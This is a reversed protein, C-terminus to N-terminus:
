GIKSQLLEMLPQMLTSLMRLTPDGAQEPMVTGSTDTGTTAGTNGGMMAGGEGGGGPAGGAMGGGAPMGGGGPMGGGEGGPFDGGNAEREAQMTAVQEETLEGMEGGGPGGQGGGMGVSEMVTRMSDQNIGLSEIQALQDATMAGEIQKYLGELEANTITESNMLASLGKWLPLLTAAQESTIAYDTDELLFSGLLIKAIQPFEGTGPTGQAAQGDAAAPEGAAGTTDQTTTKAGGCAALLLTFIIMTFWIRKM